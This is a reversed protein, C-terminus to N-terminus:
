MMDSLFAGLVQPALTELGAACRGTDARLKPVTLGPVGGIECAHGIFWRELGAGTAEVHFQLGLAAKGWSFAQNRTISTSALLTAGEPLDFTDGHWHLVPVGDLVALPSNRGAETLDLASWGIEKVGGNPYVRAGLARAMLQAGLCIGITPRGARLRAEILRLESGLFPYADDEYAGIPGGLIVLLDIAPEDLAAFDDLGAEVYRVGYGAAALRAEFSGLDEFAVHRIAVCTKM